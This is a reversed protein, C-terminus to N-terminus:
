RSYEVPTDRDYAYPRHCGPSCSGGTATKAFAIPIRWEGFPVSETVHKPGKSAHTEHCARCTRGKVPRNVHLHHLNLKGNRFGTLKDTREESMADSEHCGFCLAYQEEAYAAYFESPYGGTLLRFNSGGHADHCAGCDKDQIPGHHQPNKELVEGINAMRGQEAGVAANHCTLCLDMSAKLLIGAFASAHPDHCASCARGKTVVDHAATAKEVAEAISDHCDLCLGPPTSRLIMRNKAGHPDHCTGCEEGAPEHKYPSDAIRTAMVAHCKACVKPDPASLLSKHDSAHADHCATCAGAAVPGHLHPRDETVSDHCDLCLDAVKPKTLLKGVNSAHPDHCLTCEGETVPDHRNKGEFPDHCETCLEGGEATLKFKHDKENTQEHCIDCSGESVPDHVVSKKGFDGHCHSTTCSGRYGPPPQGQAQGVLITLGVVGIIGTGLRIM